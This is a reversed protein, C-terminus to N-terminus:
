KQIMAEMEPDVDENQSEYLMAQIKSREKPTLSFEKIFALMAKMANNSISLEPIQQQYGTQTTFVLEGKKKIAKEADLWHQYNTCLAALAIEDGNKWKGNELLVNFIKYYLKKAESKLFSPPKQIQM